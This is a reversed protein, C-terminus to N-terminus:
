KESHNSITFIFLLKLSHDLICRPTGRPDIRPGRKNLNENIVNEMKYFASVNTYKYSQQHHNMM